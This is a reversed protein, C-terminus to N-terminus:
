CGSSWSPAKRPRRIEHLLPCGPGSLPSNSEYAWLRRIRVLLSRRKTIPRMFACILLRMLKRDRCLLARHEAITLVCVLRRKTIAGMIKVFLLTSHRLISGGSPMLLPPYNVISCRTRVTSHGNKDTCLLM